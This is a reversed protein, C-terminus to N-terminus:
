KKNDLYSIFRTLVTAVEARTVAKTLDVKTNTKLKVIGEKTAWAIVDKSTNEVNEKVNKIKLYSFLLNVLQNNNISSNIGELDNKNIINNLLAWKVSDRYWINTKLYISSDVVQTTIPKGALRYLVAVMMARSMEKEPEFTNESTGIFLGRSLVKSIDNRAWYDNQIDTFDEVICYRTELMAFMGLKSTKIVYGENTVEGNLLTKTNNSNIRYVIIDKGVIPLILTKLGKDEKDNKTQMLINIIKLSTKKNINSEFLRKVLLYKNGKQIEDVKLTFDENITAKLSIGTNKDTKKVEKSKNANKTTAM